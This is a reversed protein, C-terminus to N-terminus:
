GALLVPAGATPGSLTHAVGGALDVLTLGLAGTLAALVDSSAEKRGREVESLYQPSVGARAAVDVLRLGADRRADRLRQGIARRWARGDPAPAPAPAPGPATGGPVAFGARRPPGVPTARPTRRAARVTGPRAALPALPTVTATM